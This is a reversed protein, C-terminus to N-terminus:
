NALKESIYELGSDAVLVGAKAQNLIGMIQSDTYTKNKM